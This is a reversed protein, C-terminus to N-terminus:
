ATLLTLMAGAAVATGIVGAVNPGMAHMLVYSGPYEQQVVRQCVRAAMPVASVGAAGIVPNIKGGSLVKMVQGFITGGATSFIFAVLGLAIIKITAATLFSEAEMTAGVTIGLFITTANLIENQAAQNLRETCGCERLLNGFMLMGILPVAPPLVLGCAITSIIPFLVRETKTVPRLQEMRIGRDEKTTFMKIVPPQILPVLSMYSYAAVAVAGVIRPALKMCLYISTPGDAGGIIGIAAAEKINFGLFMAGVVAVFVGLQAAAGLLFTIPNALLPGFDTLAGIGMFIIIPYIEHKTGFSVYYLFGGPDVIGSLPLNVLLCGFAIPTLLLPEFGKAIALYLLVLAVVIMVINGGSLGVLGSQEILGKLAALYLEM